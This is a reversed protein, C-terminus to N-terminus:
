LSSPTCTAGSTARLACAPRSAIARATAAPADLKTALGISRWRTSASTSVNMLGRHLGAVTRQELLDGIQCLGALDGQAPNRRAAVRAVDLCRLTPNIPSEFWCLRTRDGILAEPEAFEELTALRVDIGFRRM